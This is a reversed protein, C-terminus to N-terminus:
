SRFNSQFYRVFNVDKSKSILELNIFVELSYLLNNCPIPNEFTAMKSFNLNRIYCFYYSRMKIRFILKLYNIIGGCYTNCMKKLMRSTTKVCLVPTNTVMSILAEDDDNNIGFRSYLLATNYGM